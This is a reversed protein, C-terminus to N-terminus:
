EKGKEGNTERPVDDDFGLIRRYRRDQEPNLVMGALFDIRSRIEGLEKLVREMIEM